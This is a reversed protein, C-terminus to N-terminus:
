WQPNVSVRGGLFVNITLTNLELLVLAGGIAGLITGALSIAKSWTAEPLYKALAAIAGIASMRSGIWQLDGRELTYAYGWWYWNGFAFETLSIEDAATGHLTDTRVVVTSESLIEIDNQANLADVIESMEEVLALDTVDCDNSALVYKGAREVISDALCGVTEVEETSHGELLSGQAEAAMVPVSFIMSTMVISLVTLFNKKM